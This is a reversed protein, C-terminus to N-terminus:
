MLLPKALAKHAVRCSHLLLKLVRPGVARAPQNARDVVHQSQEAEELIVLHDPDILHGALHAQGTRRNVPHERGEAMM